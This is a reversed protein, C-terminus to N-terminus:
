VNVHRCFYLNEFNIAQKNTVYRKNKTVVRELFVKKECFLCLFVGYFLM